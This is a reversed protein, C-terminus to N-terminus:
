ILSIDSFNIVYRDYPIDAWIIASHYQYPNIVLLIPAKIDLSSSEVVFRGEGSTILLIEYVDHCHSVSVAEPRTKDYSHSFRIGYHDPIVIKSM